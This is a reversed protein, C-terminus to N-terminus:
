YTIGDARVVGIVGKGLGQGVHKAAELTVIAVMQKRKEELWVPPAKGLLKGQADQLGTLSGTSQHAM